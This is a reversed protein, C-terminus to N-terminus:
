SVSQERAGRKVRIDDGSSRTATVHGGVCEYLTEEDIGGKGRRRSGVGVRVRCVMGSEVCLRRIARVVRVSRERDM